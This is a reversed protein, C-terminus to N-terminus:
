FDWILLAADLCKNFSEEDVTKFNRAVNAILSIQLSLM